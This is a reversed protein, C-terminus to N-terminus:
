RMKKRLFRQRISDIKDILLVGNLHDNEHQIANALLGDAELEFWEGYRDQARVHIRESRKIWENSNPFSLCGEQSLVTGELLTVQPNVFIRPKDKGVALIFMKINKGIQPAALGIGSAEIMTLGMNNVLIQFEEGFDTVEVNELRLRQDPFKLIPLTM